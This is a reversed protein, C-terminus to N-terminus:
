CCSIFPSSILTLYRGFSLKIRKSDLDIRGEKGLEGLVQSKYERVSGSPHLFISLRLAEDDLETLTPPHSSFIIVRGCTKLGRVCRWAYLSGVYGFSLPM